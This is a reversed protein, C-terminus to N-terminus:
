LGAKNLKQIFTQQGNNLPKGGENATIYSLWEDGLIPKRPMITLTATARTPHGLKDYPHEFKLNCTTIYCPTIKIVGEIVFTIAPPSLLCSISSLGPTPGGDNPVVYSSLKSSLQGLNASSRPLSLAMLMSAPVVVDQYADSYAVFEADFSLSNVPTSGAWVVPAYPVASFNADSDIASLIKQIDNGSASLLPEYNNASEFAYSAPLLAVVTKLNQQTGQELAPIFYVKLFNQQLYPVGV